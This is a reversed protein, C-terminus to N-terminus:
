AGTEDSSVTRESVGKPEDLVQGLRIVARKLHLPRLEILKQQAIRGRVADVNAFLRRHSSDIEIIRIACRDRRRVALPDFRAEENISFRRVPFFKASMPSAAPKRSGSKEVPTKMAIFDASMAAFAISSRSRLPLM